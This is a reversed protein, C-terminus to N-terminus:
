SALLDLGFGAVSQGDLWLGLAQWFSVSQV